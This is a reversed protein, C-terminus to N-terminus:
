DVCSVTGQTRESQRQNGQNNQTNTEVLQEKKLMMLLKESRQQLLLRHAAEDYDLMAHIQQELEELSPIYIPGACTRKWRGTKKAEEPSLSRLRKRAITEEISAIAREYLDRNEYWILEDIIDLSIHKSSFPRTDHERLQELHFRYALESSTIRDFLPLYYQELCEGGFRPTKTVYIRNIVNTCKIQELSKQPGPDSDLAEVDFDRESQAGRDLLVRMYLPHVGYFVNTTGWSGPQYMIHFQCLVDNQLRYWHLGEDRYSRFGAKTLAEAYGVKSFFQITEKRSAGELSSIQVLTKRKSENKM